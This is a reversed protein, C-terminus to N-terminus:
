AARKRAYWHRQRTAEQQSMDQLWEERAALRQMFDPPLQVTVFITNNGGQIFASGSEPVITYGRAFYSELAAGVDTPNGCPFVSGDINVREAV